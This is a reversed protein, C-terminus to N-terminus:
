PFCLNKNGLMFHNPTISELDNVDSSVPTLPRANLTQEGLCITTSLVDETISRNGLVAYMAKQLKQGTKGVGRWLSTRCAPQVEM